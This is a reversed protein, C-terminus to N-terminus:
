GWSSYRGQSLCYINSSHCLGETLLYKLGMVSSHGSQTSNSVMDLTTCSGLALALVGLKLAQARLWQTSRSDTSASPMHFRIGAEWTPVASSALPLKRIILKERWMPWTFFWKLTIYTIHAEDLLVVQLTVLTYVTTFLGVLTFPTM